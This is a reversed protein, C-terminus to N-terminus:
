LQSSAFILLGFITFTLRMSNWRRQEQPRQHGSSRVWCANLFALVPSRARAAQQVVVLGAVVGFAFQSAIFWPWSILQNLLPDILGLISHLLGTWLIPAILGGLLIPRRPFMPLMAGYLLGVLLSTVVHIVVALLFSELHFASLSTSGVKLNLTLRQPSCISPTGSAERSSFVMSARSCQWPWAAPWGARSERRSRIHRSHCYRVRSIRRWRCGKSRVDLVRLLPPCSESKSRRKRKRRCCTAFGVSELPSPWSQEWSASRLARLWARSCSRSALRWFSRGPRLHRSACSERCSRQNTGARFDAPNM